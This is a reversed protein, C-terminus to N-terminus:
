VSFSVRSKILSAFGLETGITGGPM